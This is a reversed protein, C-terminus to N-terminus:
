LIVVQETLVHRRIGPHLGSYTLVDVPRGLLDELDLKVSVLDLLSKEGEFEILLDLDRSDDPNDRTMSGFVAARVIGHQKLVPLITRKLQELFENM